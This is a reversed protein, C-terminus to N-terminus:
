ALRQSASRGGPAANKRGTSTFDGTHSLQSAYIIYCAARLFNAWCSAKILTVEFSGVVHYKTQWCRAEL